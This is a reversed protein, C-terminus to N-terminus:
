SGRTCEIIKIILGDNIAICVVVLAVMVLAYIRWIAPIKDKWFKLKLEDVFWSSQSEGFLKFHAFENSLFVQRYIAKSQFENDLLLLDTNLGSLDSDECCKSKEYIDRVKGYLINLQRGTEAYKDKDNLYTNLYFLAFGIISTSAGIVTAIGDNKYILFLIGCAFSFVGFYAPAKEVIDYTAFHRKTGFGIRYGLEASCRKLSEREIMM